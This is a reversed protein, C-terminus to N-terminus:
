ARDHNAHQLIVAFRDGSLRYIGNWQGLHKELVNAIEQLVKNGFERGKQANIASLDDVDSIFLYGQSGEQIVACLDERWNLGYSLGTLKDVRTDFVSTSCRGIVVRKEGNDITVQKGKNNIWVRKGERNVLRYEMVFDTELGDAIRFMRKEIKPRDLPYTLNLMEQVEFGVDEKPLLVFADSITRTFYIKDEDLDWIYMPDSISANMVRVLEICEKLNFKSLLTLNMGM